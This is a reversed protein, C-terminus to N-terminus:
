NEDEEKKERNVVLKGTAVDLQVQVGQAELERQMDNEAVSVLRQPQLGRLAESVEESHLCLQRVAFLAWERSLPNTFDTVCHQLLSSLIPLSSTGAATSTDETRASETSGQAELVQIFDKDPACTSDEVALLREVVSHIEEEKKLTWERAGNSYAFLAGYLRLSQRLVEAVWPSLSRRREDGRCARATEQVVAPDLTRRTVPDRGRLVATHLFPILLDVNDGLQPYRGNILVAASSLAAVLFDCQWQDQLAELKERESSTSQSDFLRQQVGPSLSVVTCIDRLIMPLLSTLPAVEIDEGVAAVVFLFLTQEWSPFQRSSSTLESISTSSASLASYVTSLLDQHEQSHLLRLVFLQAGESHAASVASSTEDDKAEKKPRTTHLSLFLQRLTLRGIPQTCLTFLPHSSSSVEETRRREKTSTSTSFLTVEETERSSSPSSSSSSSSVATVNLLTTWLARLAHEEQLLNAAAALDSLSGQHRQHHSLALYHSLLYSKYFDGCAAVNAFVQSVVILVKRKTELSCRDILTFLSDDEMATEVLATIEPHEKSLSDQSYLALHRGLLCCQQLLSSRVLWQVVASEGCCCNRLLYLRELFHQPSIIDAEEWFHVSVEELWKAICTGNTVLQARGEVSRSQQYLVSWDM